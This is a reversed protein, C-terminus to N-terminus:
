MSDYIGHPKSFNDFMVQLVSCGELEEAVTADCVHQSINLCAVSSFINPHLHHFYKKGM